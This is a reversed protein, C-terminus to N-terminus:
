SRFRQSCIALYESVNPKNNYLSAIICYYNEDVYQLMIQYLRNTSGLHGGIFGAEQSM